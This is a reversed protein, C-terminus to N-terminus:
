IAMLQMEDLSWPLFFAPHCNITNLSCNITNLEDGLRVGKYMCHAPGMINLHVQKTRLVFANILFSALTMAIFTLEYLLFNLIDGAFM